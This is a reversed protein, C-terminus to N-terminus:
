PLAVTLDEQSQRHLVLSTFEAIFPREISEAIKKVIVITDPCEFRAEVVSSNKRHKEAFVFFFM